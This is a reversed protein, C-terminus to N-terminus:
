SSRKSRFEKAADVFAQFLSQSDEGESREPHWQVGLIWRGTSDEIAEVTGDDHRAVVTLGEGLRNVAQHHSSKGTTLQGVVSELRSGQAVAYNQVTYGRHDNNGLLDPLHQHLSGGRSVNVFQCGYCIGFVPLDNPILSWLRQETTTRDKSELSSEPHLPEGWLASDFDDGGPILWGDIMDVVPEVDSTPPILIATAGAANLRDVYNRELYYRAHEIKSVPSTMAGVTIAIIPKSM